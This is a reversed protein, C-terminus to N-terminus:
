DKWKARQRDWDDEVDKVEKGIRFAPGLSQGIDRYTL